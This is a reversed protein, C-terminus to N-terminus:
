ESELLPMLVQIQSRKQLCGDWKDFALRKRPHNYSRYRKAIKMHHAMQKDWYYWDQEPQGREKLKRYVQMMEWFSGFEQRAKLM